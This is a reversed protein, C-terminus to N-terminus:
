LHRKYTLCVLLFLFFHASRERQTSMQIKKQRVAQVYWGGTKSVDASSASGARPRKKKQMPVHYSVFYYCCTWGSIFILFGFVLFIYARFRIKKAVYCHAQARELAVQSM